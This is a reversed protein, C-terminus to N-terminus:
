QREASTFSADRQVGWEGAFKQLRGFLGSAMSLRRTLRVPLHLCLGTQLLSLHETRGVLASRPSLLASFAAVGFRM